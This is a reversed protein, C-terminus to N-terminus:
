NDQSSFTTHFTFPEAASNAIATLYFKLHAVQGPSLHIKDPVTANEPKLRTEGAEVKVLYLIWSSTEYQIAAANYSTFASARWTVNIEVNGENKLYFELTKVDDGLSVNFEGWDHSDLTQTCLPDSYTQIKGDSIIIAQHDITKTFYVTALASSLLIITCLMALLGLHVERNFITVYKRM